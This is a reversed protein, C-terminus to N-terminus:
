RARHFEVEARLPRGFAGFGIQLNDGSQQDDADRAPHGPLVPAIMAMMGPAGAVGMRMIVALVLVVVVDMLAIVIIIMNMIVRMRMVMGMGRAAILAVMVAIEAMRTVLPGVGTGGHRLLRPELLIQQEDVGVGDGVRM